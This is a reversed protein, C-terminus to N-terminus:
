EEAPAQCSNIGFDVAKSLTGALEFRYDGSALNGARIRKGNSAEGAAVLGGEADFLRFLVDENGPHFNLKADLFPLKIEVPVSVAAEGPLFAGAFRECFAAVPEPDPDDEDPEGVQFTRGTGTDSNLLLGGTFSTGILIQGQARTNTSTAFLVDSGVAANVKDLGLRVRVQNGAIEGGDAEGLTEQNRLGTTPDTTIRGYGFTQAGTEDIAATVFVTTTGFDSSITWRMNPTLTSLDTLTLTYVLQNAAADFDFDGARIDQALTGLQDGALDFIEPTTPTPFLDAPHAVASLGEAARVANHADLYGAGVVREEFPMPTATARLITVVDDPTLLPNAELMLAVVGSVHPASFSTGRSNTYFLIFAPPITFLDKSGVFISPSTALINTVGPGKSRTSKVAEGPGTVDPRLNPPTNPDAPQGATDSGTGNDEGRSSFVTPTGLAEREGAAVSIVWPAASYPNIAGPVDGVGGIGNGAAFVVVINADHLARTAVNIANNPNYPNNRQTSGWSNNVVRINYRTRNALAYDFAQLIAFSALGCDNGAVLGILSAGPAMGGYLDGSSQGNAGIVGSVFTGHGGEADTLPQNEAFVPGTFGLNFAVGPLGAIAPCGTPFTAIEATPFMVNQKVTKGLELDRHTADIGTDVVAVGIGHGSIPFGGNLKQLEKDARLATVGIFTRSVDTYLEMVRNADLAVIGSKNRLADFQAKTVGTLIMPLKELVMGGPIGLLQLQAIDAGTPQHDYTIVVATLGLSAANVQEVLAPDVYPAASAATAAAVLCVVLIIARKM